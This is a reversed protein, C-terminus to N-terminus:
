REREGQIFEEVMKRAVADTYQKPPSKMVYSSISELAGGINRDLAIKCARIADIVCAASNPSDIVSLRLELEVPTNGFKRGEMRIYCIKKDNLWPVYDSPGIHIKDDDMPKELQSQVSQTKSIKKSKLRSCELMNLFDTNGGFNLQYTRDMAVGREKFLNTLVRHIITAGIESKIDDGVIPIRNKSFKESWSKDSAIFVPMCNVMAVGAELCTDALNETAKQSGVPLYNVLIEAGSSELEEAMNCPTDSSLIFRRDEPYNKMHESFGDLVPAMKVKIKTEPVTCFIETCNPKAFIAESLDKGVKRSDVDFAAVPEIDSIKYGGFDIHMLGTVGSSKNKYYQLGQVLASACNGAGAIAIKIKSM